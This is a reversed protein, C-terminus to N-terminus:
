RDVVHARRLRAGGGPLGRAGLEGQGARHPATLTARCRLLSRQHRGNWAADRSAPRRRLEGRFLDAVVAPLGRRRGPPPEPNSGHLSSQLPGLRHGVPSGCEAKFADGATFMTLLTLGRQDTARFPVPGGPHVGPPSGLRGRDGHAEGYRRRRGLLPARIRERREAFYVRDSEPLWGTCGNFCPGAVWAEDYLEDLLTLASRKVSRGLLPTAHQYDYMVRRNRTWRVNQPAQGVHETGRMMNELSLEFAHARAVEPEATATLQAAGSLPLACALMILLAPVLVGVRVWARHDRRRVISKGRSM